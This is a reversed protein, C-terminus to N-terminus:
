NVHLNYTSRTVCAITEGERRLLQRLNPFANALSKMAPMVCPLNSEERQVETNGGPVTPVDPATKPAAISTSTTTLDAAERAGTAEEDSAVTSSRKQTSGGFPM